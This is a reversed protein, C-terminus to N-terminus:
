YRLFPLKVTALSSYVRCHQQHIYTHSSENFKNMNIDIWKRIGDIEELFINKWRESIITRKMTYSRDCMLVISCLKNSYDNVPAAATTERERAYSLVPNNCKWPLDSMLFYHPFLPSCILYRNSASNFAIMSILIIKWGFLCKLKFIPNKRDLM